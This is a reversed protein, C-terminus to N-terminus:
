SNTIKFNWAVDSSPVIIYSYPDTTEPDCQRPVMATGTICGSINAGTESHKCLLTVNGPVAFLFMKNKPLTGSYTTRTSLEHLTVSAAIAAVVDDPVASIVDGYVYNVFRYQQQAVAVTSGKHTVSINFSTNETIAEYSLNSGDVTMPTTITAESAVNIGRRTINLVVAPTVTQGKEYIGANSSAVAVVLPFVELVVDALDQAQSASMVGAVPDTEGTPVTGAKPITVGYDAGDGNTAIVITANETGTELSVGTVEADQLGSIDESHRDLAAKDAASMVGAASTTAKPLTISSARGFEDTFTLVVTNASGTGLSLRIKGLAIWLSNFKGSVYGQSMVHESSGGDAEVVNAKDFKDRELNGCATQLLTILASMADDAAIRAAEEAEDAAIRASRESGLAPTVADEVIADQMIRKLTDAAIRKGNSLEIYSSEPITQVETLDTILASNTRIASLVDAVIQQREEATM